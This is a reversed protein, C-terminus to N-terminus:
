IICRVKKSGIYSVAQDQNAPIAKVVQEKVGFHNAIRSVYPSIKINDDAMQDNAYTFILRDSPTLFALYNLFPEFAMQMEAPDSIFRDEPLVNQLQNVDDDGFLNESDSVAPMNDDTAGMIFTVKRTASQVMGSESVTVQDLTSPVMSYESGEFGSYILNWFEESDFQNDGLISVCEDLLSCMTRYVQDIQDSTNVNGDDLASDRWQQLRAVVGSSVLFNFLVTAAERNTKSRYLNKFFPPLMDKILHRILNIKKTIELDKDSLVQHVDDDNVWKYQWDEPQLWRYDEYGNKLVLNETLAVADRYEDIDMPHGDVEPLILESKLFRMIDDYRYNRKRGPKYIDFLSSLLEVLSHDSMARQIDEFYPIELNDFVPQLINHYSSLNRTLVLFDSYRYDGNAVMQRIRTAVQDLESYRNEVHIIQLSDQNTLKSNEIPSMSASEIWYRELKKIDSTVRSKSATLVPLYPVKNESAFKYLQNFVRGPVHFFDMVDPKEVPYPKDLNLAVLTSQGKTILTEVLKLEQATFRSFGQIYFHFHSIDNKPDALFNSLLNLGNHSDFFNEDVIRQFETYIIAFDQLKDQLDNPLGSSQNEQIQVLDTPLVNGSQFEAVQKALQDLFGPQHVEQNFLVLKDENDTIIQYLLMNIGASSLRQKQYEPTNRMFYWALRSFSLVQINSEAAVKDSDSLGAIVRVESEFKIHNPVLYFFQDMPKQTQEQKILKIVEDVSDQSATSLLFQLSM